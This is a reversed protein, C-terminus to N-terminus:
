IQSFFYYFYYFLSNVNRNMDNEAQMNQMAKVNVNNPATYHRRKEKPIARKHKHAQPVKENNDESASGSMEILIQKAAESQFVPSLDPISKTLSQISETKNRLTFNQENNNIQTSESYHSNNHTNKNKEGYLNYYNKDSMSVPYPRNSFSTNPFHDSYRRSSNSLIGSNSALNTIPLSKPPEHSKKEKIQKIAEYTENYSRPLSKSRSYLDETQQNHVDEEIVQDLNQNSLSINGSRERSRRESERKVIRVTKIEPREQNSFNSFTNNELLDDSSDMGSAEMGDSDTYRSNRHHLNTSDNESHKSSSSCNLFNGSSNASNTDVYLPTNLNLNETSMSTTHNTSIMTDLDTETWCSVHQRRKIHSSQHSDKNNNGIQQYLSNSNETLQRVAQSLEQRQRQMDGVLQQVRRLESELLATTNNSQQSDLASQSGRANRSAQLKQRLVLM